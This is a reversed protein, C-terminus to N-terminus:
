IQILLSKANEIAEDTINKGSLMKAIEKVRQMSDLEAIKTEISGQTEQKFVKYHTQGKAAIQPLHTISIVQMNHAMAQMINAMKDAIEGSVGTDIEDFIITPLQTTQSLLYKISLMLRSIEGGSAIKTINQMPMNKNGTFLFSVTNKGNHAFQSIPQIDASFQAHPMGLESLLMTVNDSLPKLAKKRNNNLQLVLNELQATNNELAKQQKAIQTEFSQEQLLKQEYENKIDILKSVSNVNHKQFLSYVKDLQEKLELARQPNYELTEANTETETAIDQLDLLCSEVRQAFDDAQKLYKKIKDFNRNVQKLQDIINVDANTLLNFNESLNIQIDESHNLQELEQEIEAQNINELKLENLQDFQFQNYESDANSKEAKEKLETYEKKLQLHAKYTDKYSLLIDNNKAMADVVTMQFNNDNLLLNEHQSHIDILLSSLQKLSNLNTPTDNIFARSKGNTSIERRVITLDDYDVDIDNFIHQLNFGRLNFCAEIICKKNNNALAASDARNGLALTLAGLLISKGAGTEGTLVSFGDSFKIDLEQILAYNNIKLSTLMGIHLITYTQRYSALIKQQM